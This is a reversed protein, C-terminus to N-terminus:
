GQFRDFINVSWPSLSRHRVRCDALPRSSPPVLPEEGVLFRWFCLRFAGLHELRPVLFKAFVQIFPAPSACRYSWSLFLPCFAVVVRDVRRAGRLFGEPVLLHRIRPIRCARWVSCFCFVWPVQTWPLCGPYPSLGLGFWFVYERSVQLRFSPFFM